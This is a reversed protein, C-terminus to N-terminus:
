TRQASKITKKDSSRDSQPHRSLAPTVIPALVKLLTFAKRLAGLDARLIKLRLGEVMSHWPAAAETAETRRSKWVEYRCM